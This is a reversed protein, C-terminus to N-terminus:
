WTYTYSPLVVSNMGYELSTLQLDGGFDFDDRGPQRLLLGVGRYGVIPMPAGYVWFRYDEIMLM